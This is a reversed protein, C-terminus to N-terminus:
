AIDIDGHAIDIDGHAIDIDGHAIDDRLRGKGRSCGQSRILLFSTSLSTPEPHPAHRFIAIAESKVARRRRPVGQNPAYGRGFESRTSSPDRRDVSPGRHYRGGTSGKRKDPLPKTATAWTQWVVRPAGMRTARSPDTSTAFPEPTGPHRPGDDDKRERRRQSGCGRHVSKKRCKTVRSGEESGTRM